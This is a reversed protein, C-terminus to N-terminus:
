VSPRATASKAFVFEINTLFVTTPYSQREGLFKIAFEHPPRPGEDKNVYVTDRFLVTDRTEADFKVPYFWNNIYAAIGPDSYTTKM